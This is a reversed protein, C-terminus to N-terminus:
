RFNFTGVVFGQKLITSAIMDVVPDDYCGGLAAYPHAVIAAKKRWETIGAVSTPTLEIPHYVRCDLMLDDYTSPITFTFTPPPLM